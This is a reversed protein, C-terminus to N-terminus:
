CRNEFTVVLDVVIQVSDSVGRKSNFRFRFSAHSQACTSFDKGTHQTLCRSARFKLGARRDLSGAQFWARSKYTEFSPRSIPAHYLLRDLTTTREEKSKELALLTVDVINVKKECCTSEINILRPSPRLRLFAGVGGPIEGEQM